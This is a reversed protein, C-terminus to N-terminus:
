VMELASNIITHACDNSEFGEESAFDITSSNYMRDAFSVRNFELIALLQDADNAYGAVRDDITVQIQGNTASFFVFRNM